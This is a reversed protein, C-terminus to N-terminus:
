SLASHAMAAATRLLRSGCQGVSVRAMECYDVPVVCLGERMELEDTICHVSYCSLRQRRPMCARSPAIRAFVHRMVYCRRLPLVAFVYLRVRAYMM